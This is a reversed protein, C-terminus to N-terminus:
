GDQVRQFDDGNEPENPGNITGGNQSLDKKKFDGSLVNEVEKRQLLPESKTTDSHNM